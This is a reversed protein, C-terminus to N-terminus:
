SEKSLETARRRIWAVPSLLAESLRRKLMKDYFFPLNLLKDEICECFLIARSNDRLAEDLLLSDPAYRQIIEQEITIM